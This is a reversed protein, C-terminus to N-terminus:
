LVSFGGKNIEFNTITQWKDMAVKWGGGVRRCSLDIVLKDSDGGLAKLM